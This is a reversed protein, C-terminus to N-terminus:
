APTSQRRKVARRPTRAPKKPARATKNAAIPPHLEGRRIHEAVVREFQDIFAYALRSIPRHRPSLLRGTIRVAPALPKAVLEPFMGGLWAFGDVVAIGSGAQVLACATWSQTVEIAVKRRLGARIYAAEILAGIPRDRSFSILPFDQLDAPTVNKGAALPHDRPMVCLLDASCFDHASTASDEAPSLALGLDVKHEAVFEVIEHNLLTQLVVRAKPRSSRFREITAGILSTGFSASAAVTVVGSRADRLDDALRHVSEMAALGKILEPLLKRAEATPTLSGHERIFLQFGLQGEAQQLIKSVAPQSVRLLRAAETVSGSEMVARFIELQRFRPSM